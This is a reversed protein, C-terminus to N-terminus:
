KTTVNRDCTTDIRMEFGKERVIADSFFQILLPGNPELTYIYNLLPVTTHLKFIDTNEEDSPTMIKRGRGCLTKTRPEDTFILKDFPCNQGEEVHFDHFKITFRMNETRNLTVSCQYNFPYSQPYNKTKIIYTPNGCDPNLNLTTDGNCILNEIAPKKTTPKETKMRETTPMTTTPSPTTTSKTTFEQMTTEPNEEEKETKMKQTTMKMMTTMMRKISTRASTSKEEEGELNDEGDLKKKIMELDESLKKLESKLETELMIIRNEVCEEIPTSKTLCDSVSEANLAAFIAPLLFIAKM